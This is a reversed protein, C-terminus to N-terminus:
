YLRFVGNTSDLSDPIPIDFYGSSDTVTGIWLSEVWVFCSGNNSQNELVVTGRIHKRDPKEPSPVFPSKERTCGLMMLLILLSSFLYIPLKTSM